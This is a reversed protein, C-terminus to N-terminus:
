NAKAWREDTAWRDLAAQAGAARSLGPRHMLELEILREFRERDGRCRHLLQKESASEKSSFWKRLVIVRGDQLAASAHLAVFSPM